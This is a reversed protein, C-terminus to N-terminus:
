DEVLWLWAFEQPQKGLGVGPTYERWGTRGAGDNDNVLMSFGVVSGPTLRMGNELLEAPILLEYTLVGADRDIAVAGRLKEDFAEVPWGAPFQGFYLWPRVTPDRSATQLPPGSANAAFEIELDNEDYGVGAAGDSRLDLGIQVSDFEWVIRSDPPHVHDDRTEIALHLGAASWAVWASVALDDPGPPNTTNVYEWPMLDTTIQPARDRWERLSGDPKANTPAPPCRLLQKRKAADLTLGLAELRLNLPTNPRTALADVDLPLVASTTAGPQLAVNGTQAAGAGVQLSLRGAAREVGSYDIAIPLEPNEADLATLAAFRLTLPPEVKALWYGCVEEGSALTACWRLENFGPDLAATDLTMQGRPSDARGVSKEGLVAGTQAEAVRLRTATAAGSLEVPITVEGARAISRPFTALLADTPLRPNHIYVPDRGITMTYTIFADSGGDAADAELKRWDGYLDQTLLIHNRTVLTTPSPEADWDRWLVLVRDPEPADGPKQFLFGRVGPAPRLDAVFRKDALNECLTRYAAWSRKTRYDARVVGRYVSRDNHDPSDTWDMLTLQFTKEVGLSLLGISFRVLRAAQEAESLGVPGTYFGNETHWIPTDRDDFDAMVARLQGVAIRESEVGLQQGYGHYSIADFHGKAGASYMDRLFAHDPGALAGAVIVCNPDAQKARRYALKLMEAYLRGDPDPTWFPQINPENWVEWADVYAGYRKVMQHVYEGFQERQQANQPGGVDWYAAGYSLIGLVRFGHARYMPIARDFASFDWEGPRPEVVSWWFDQRLWGAGTRELVEFKARAQEWLHPENGSVWHSFTPGHLGFPNARPHLRQAHPPQHGAVEATPPVARCATPFLAFSLAVFTLLVRNAFRPPQSSRSM